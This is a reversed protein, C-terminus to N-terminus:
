CGGLVLLKVSTISHWWAEQQIRDDEEGQVPFDEVELADREAYDDGYAFQLCECSKWREGCVYCFEAGCPCSWRTLWYSGTLPSFVWTIHNCGVALEVVLHCQYCRQWQRRAAVELVKQLAEDKPCDGEHSMLKCVICTERGCDACSVKDGAERDRATVPIFASCTLRSCYTKDTTSYEIKKREFEHIVETGLLSRLEFVGVPQKCCLPPFLSEDTIAMTVLGVLCKACYLHRCQLEVLLQKVRYCVECVLPENPKTSLGGGKSLPPPGSPPDDNVVTPYEESVVSRAAELERRYLRLAYDADSEAQPAISEIDELQLEVILDATEEDVGIM